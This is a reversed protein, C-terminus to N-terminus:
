STRHNIYVCLAGAYWIYIYMRMYVLCKHVNRDGSRYLNSTGVKWSRVRARGGGGGGGTKGSAQWLCVSDTSASRPFAQVLILWKSDVPSNNQKKKKPGGLLYTRLRRTENSACNTLAHAHTHLYSSRSGPCLSISPVCWVANMSYVGEIPGSEWKTIAYSAAHNSADLM